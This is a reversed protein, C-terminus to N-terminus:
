SPIELFLAHDATNLLASPDHRLVVSPQCTNATRTAVGPASVVPLCWEETRAYAPHSRLGGGWTVVIVTRQM